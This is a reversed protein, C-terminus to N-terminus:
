SVSRLHEDRTEPHMGAMSEFRGEADIRLVPIFQRIFDHSEAAVVGDLVLWVHGDLTGSDPLRRVGVYLEPRAGAARFLRYATLSRELCNAPARAPFRGTAGMYGLITSVNKPETRSPRSGMRVLRVLVRLPLLHKLVRLLAAWAWFQAAIALPMRAPPVAPPPM